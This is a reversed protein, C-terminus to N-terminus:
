CLGLFAGCMFAVTELAFLFEIIECRVTSNPVKTMTVKIIWYQIIIWLILCILCLIIEFTIM